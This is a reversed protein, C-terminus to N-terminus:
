DDTNSQEATLVLAECQLLEVVSELLAIRLGIGQPVLSCPSLKCLGRHQPVAEEVAIALSPLVGDSVVQREVLAELLLSSVNEVWSHAVVQPVLAM